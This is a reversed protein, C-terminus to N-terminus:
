RMSVLCAEAWLSKSVGLDGRLWDAAEVIDPWAPDPQRLYPKLKPALWPLEDPRISHVM